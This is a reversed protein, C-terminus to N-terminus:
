IKLHSKSSHLNIYQAKQKLEDCINSYAKMYGLFIDTKKGQIVYLDYTNLRANYYLEM